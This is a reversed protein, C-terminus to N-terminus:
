KVEEFDVDQVNKNKESKKESDKEKKEDKKKKTNYLEQASTSLINNMINIYHDIDSINKSNRAEKLNKLNLEIKKKTEESIKNGYEKLQKETQFIMSDASNIKEIEEKLKKDKEANEQAERKMREIENKSLGSSAQIRISQEKGTSKDKASVNLIGNADIDFTVEIQPVGRPAPAIDILDFRGIEKNDNFMSREGQGVRITVASQNDAATSFIESRKTPITTNSDILKTFVGGLTEIGLSLPTVDLLLVDKVDGSLVGGQIAAGISVVEDPNVGKSPTKKFFKEVQEQIKPIRTSGGVLIVEDINKDILNAAELAKKCPDLSRKMLHDSLKEFNARTLTKVLHKPGSANATIYPLNIETKSSSSLEIKAKEAAEKLRQHAMSDNRLDVGQEKKFEKVLWDIIVKDFDDGGLHTDGSTSLVEFVGEGLELISIDFTGGGLDYVVIKNNNHNKDLGYALAAATPENIIREVNLGAIEGAEKTAQRQADNFYAPVTIVAKKVENGIYDEATKKMKQLIIASIEQPSYLKKGISVRPTDNEGKIIKYPVNKLEETVESFKRGMFRKISFITKNPNTVAQRKAPDGVKTEGGELFAIISPTTRKGESNPIVVPSNGEMVSVCSNTTGLDIGIIKSM